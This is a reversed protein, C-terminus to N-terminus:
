GQKLASMQQNLLLRLRYSIITMTLEVYFFTVVLIAPFRFVFMTPVYPISIFFALHITIFIPTFLLVAAMAYFKRTLKLNELM